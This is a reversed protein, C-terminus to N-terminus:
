GNLINLSFNVISFTKLCQLFFFILLPVKETVKILGRFDSRANGELEFLSDSQNGQIYPLSNSLMEWWTSAHMDGHMEKETLVHMSSNSWVAATRRMCNATPLM